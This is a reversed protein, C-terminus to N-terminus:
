PIACRCGASIPSKGHDHASSEDATAIPVDTFSGPSSIALRGETSLTLQPLSRGDPLLPLDFICTGVLVM